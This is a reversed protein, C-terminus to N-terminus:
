RSLVRLNAPPSVAPGFLDSLNTANAADGLLPRVKFIEQITRLLSSHSYHVTSAYGNGRALPSLMIMGVPGGAADGEDWVVFIVGRNTYAASNLIKPIESALWTDGQSIPNSVPACSDHMDNCVNPTIFNYAAVTNNTLDRALETYPRIHAIGYPYNPNNTGTM